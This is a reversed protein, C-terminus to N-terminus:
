PSAERPGRERVAWTAVGGRPAPLVRRKLARVADVLGPAREDLHTVVEYRLFELAPALLRGTHRRSTRLVELGRVWPRRESVGDNRMRVVVQPLPRLRAGAKWARLYLDYDGVIRYTDDFGGIREFVARRMFTAPQYIPLTTAFGEYNAAARPSDPDHRPVFRLQRVVQGAADIMDVDGHFLDVEPWARAARALAEVADAGAYADDANLFAVWEGRALGLGRNYADYIGHDRDSVLRVRHTAARVRACTGDTSGGDVVVHELDQSTQAAVSDLTLGITRAADRAATVITVLPRPGAAVDVPPVRPVSV